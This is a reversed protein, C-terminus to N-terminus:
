FWNELKEVSNDICNLREKTGDAYYIIAVKEKLWFTDQDKLKTLPVGYNTPVDYADEEDLWFTDQDKLKTLPVGYNTPVDYADEEDLWIHWREGCCECFNSHDAVVRELLKEAEYPSDAQVSVYYDVDDNKIYYGGSNNQDITYFKKSM